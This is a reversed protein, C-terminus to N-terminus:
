YLLVLACGVPKTVTAYSRSAVSATARSGGPAGPFPAGRASPL